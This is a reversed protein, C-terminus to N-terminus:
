TGCFTRYAGCGAPPGGRYRENDNTEMFPDRLVALLRHLSTFDGEEAASLAEEVRQNRPIVVPNVRRM